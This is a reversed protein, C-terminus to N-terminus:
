QAPTTAEGIKLAEPFFLKGDKTAYSDYQNGAIELTVKVVGSELSYGKLTATEGQLVNKNLHEVSKEAISKASSNFGLNSFSLSNGTMNALVLAVTILVALVALGILISNKNLQLM